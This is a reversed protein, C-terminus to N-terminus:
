ERLFKKLIVRFYELLDFVHVAYDVPNVRPKTFSILGPSQREKFQKKLGEIVRKLETNRPGNLRSMKAELAEPTLEIGIEKYEELHRRITEVSKGTQLVGLELNNELGGITVNASGIIAARKGLVIAKAHLSDVLWIRINWKKFRGIKFLNVFVDPDTAGSLCDIENFRSIVDLRVTEKQRFRDLLPQIGGMTLFPSCIMVDHVGAAYKNVVQKIQTGEIIKRAFNRM